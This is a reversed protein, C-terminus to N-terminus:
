TIRKKDASSPVYESDSQIRLLEIGKRQMQSVIMEKKQDTMGDVEPETFYALISQRASHSINITYLSDLAVYKDSLAHMQQKLTEHKSLLETQPLDFPVTIKMSPKKSNENFLHSAIDMVKFSNINKGM